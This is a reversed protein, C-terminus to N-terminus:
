IITFPSTPNPKLTSYISISIDDVTESVVTNMVRHPERGTIIKVKNQSAYTQLFKSPSIPKIFNLTRGFILEYHVFGSALKQKSGPESIWLITCHLHCSQCMFELTKWWLASNWSCLILLNNQQSCVKVIWEREVCKLRRSIYKELQAIAFWSCSDQVLLSRWLLVERAEVLSCGLERVWLDRCM